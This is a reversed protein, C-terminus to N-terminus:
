ILVFVFLYCFASYNFSFMRCSNDSSIYVIIKIARQIQHWSKTTNKKIWEKRKTDNSKSAESLSGKRESINTSFVHKRKWYPLIILTKTPLRIKLKEGHKKMWNFPNWHIKSVSQIRSKTPFSVGGVFLLQKACTCFFPQVQAVHM